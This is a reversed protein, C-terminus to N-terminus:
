RVYGEEPNTNDLMALFVVGLAIIVCFADFMTPLTSAIFVFTPNGSNVIGLTNPLTETVTTKFVLWILVIAFFIALAFMWMLVGGRNNKHLCRLSNM